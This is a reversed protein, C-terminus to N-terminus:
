LNLWESDNFLYRSCLMIVINISAQIYKFPVWVLFETISNLIARSPLAKVVFVLLFQTSVVNIM